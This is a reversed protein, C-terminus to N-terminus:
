WGCGIRHEGQAVGQQRRGDNSWGRAYSGAPYWTLRRPEGGEASVVYVDDNGSLNSTFAIWRGDPSFHPDSEVAPTSTLRRATGGDRGAIWLDGGYTFAVHTASLTPQRLLRTQAQLGTAALLFAGLLLAPRFFRRHM